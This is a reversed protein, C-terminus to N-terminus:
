DGPFKEFLSQHEGGAARAVTFAVFARVEALDPADLPDDSRELRWGQAREILGAWQPYATSAWAAAAPKSAQLGQAMSYLARCMTLVVYAQSGRREEIENGEVVAGRWWDLHERVIQIFEDRSIHPIVAQPPPGFLTVGVERIMYWNLVWDRNLERPHFPEGPSIVAGMRAETRCNRLGELSLYLVEIRGAWTPYRAALDDHFLRLREATEDDLDDALAALLDVDSRAPDFDGSVLSGFLYLGVLRDDLVRRHGALLDALLLNVIPHPTTYM